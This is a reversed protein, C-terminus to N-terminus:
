PMEVKKAHDNRSEHSETASGSTGQILLLQPLMDASNMRNTVASWGIIVMARV